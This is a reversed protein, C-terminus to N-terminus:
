RIYQGLVSLCCKTLTVGQNVYIISSNFLLVGTKIAFTKGHEIKYLKTAVIHACSCPAAFIVLSGFFRAENSFLRHDLVRDQQLKAATYFIM